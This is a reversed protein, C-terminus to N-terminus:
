GSRILRQVAELQREISHEPRFNAHRAALTGAANRYRDQAILERILALCHPVSDRKRLLLGVGQRELAASSLYNEIVNPVMLVPVGAAVAATLTGTGHSVMLDAQPLLAQLDLPDTHFRLRDYKETWGAPLDPVVCLVEADFQQLAAFVNDVRPITSRLYVIVHPRDTEFDAQQATPLHTAPGVYTAEKRPGFHDFEPFCTMLLPHPAYLDWLREIPSHGRVTLVLNIQEVLQDEAQRLERDATPEWPRFSPLLSAKPPTEFGNSLLLVPLSQLRAALLAGPAFDYVMLHPKFLDFVGKWGIMSAELSERDAFGNRLLLDAFNITAPPAQHIPKARQIPAQVFALSYKKAVDSCVALDTVAFLVEHGAARCALALPLDRAIHGFNAGMEWAFLIRSM